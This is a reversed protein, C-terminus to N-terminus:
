HCPEHMNFSRCSCYLPSLSSVIASSAKIFHNSLLPSGDVPKGPKLHGLAAEVIMHFLSPHCIKKLLHVSYCNM